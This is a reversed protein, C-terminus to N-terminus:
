RCNQHPTLARQIFIQSSKDISLINDSCMAMPNLNILLPHLYPVIHFWTQIHRAFLAKSPHHNEDVAASLHIGVIFRTIELCQNGRINVPEGAQLNIIQMRRQLCSRLRPAHQGLDYGVCHM